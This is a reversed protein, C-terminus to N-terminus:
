HCTRLVVSAIEFRRQFFLDLIAKVKVVVNNVHSPIIKGM